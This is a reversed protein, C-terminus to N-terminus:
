FREISPGRSHGRKKQPSTLGHIKLLPTTLITGEAGCIPCTCPDELEVNIKAYDVGRSGEVGTEM